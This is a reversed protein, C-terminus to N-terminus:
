ESHPPFVNLKSNSFCSLSHTKVDNRRSKHQSYVTWAWPHFCLGTLFTRPLGCTRNLLSVCRRDLIRFVGGVGPGVMLKDYEKEQWIQPQPMRTDSKVLSDEEPREDCKAYNGMKHLNWTKTIVSKKDRVSTQSWKSIRLPPQENMESNGPVLVSGLVHYVTQLAPRM